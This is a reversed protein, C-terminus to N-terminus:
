GLLDAGHKVTLRGSLDLKLLQCGQALDEVNGHLIDACIGARGAGIHIHRGQDATFVSLMICDSMQAIQKILPPIITIVESFLM